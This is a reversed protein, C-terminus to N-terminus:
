TFKEYSEKHKTEQEDELVEMLEALRIREKTDLYPYFDRYERWIWTLTKDNLM